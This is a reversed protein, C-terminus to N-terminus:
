NNVAKIAKFMTTQLSLYKSTYYKTLGEGFDYKNEMGLLPLYEIIIKLHILPRKTYTSPDNNSQELGEREEDTDM